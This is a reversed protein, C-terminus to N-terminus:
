YRVGAVGRLSKTARSLSACVEQRTAARTADSNPSRSAPGRSSGVIHPRHGCDPLSGYGGERNAGSPSISFRRAWGSVLPTAFPSNKAAQARRARSSFLRAVLPASWCLVDRSFQESVSRNGLYQM